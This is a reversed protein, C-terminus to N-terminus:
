INLPDTELDNDIHINQISELENVLQLGDYLKGTKKKLNEEISLM